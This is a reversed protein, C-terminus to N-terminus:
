KKGGLPFIMWVRRRYEEYSHGYSSLMDDEELSIGLLMYATMAIAFLLHGVSMQPTAWFSIMLGLMIPHRIYKYFGPQILTPLPYKKNRLCYYVQRLGFLDFHGIMVTSLLVILWGVWFLAQLFLAGVGSSINWIMAPLPCWQWFLLILVLSAILVYTSCEVPKPILKRWWKKFGPRAMGSHQVSFLGLLLANILLARLAPTEPGSDISKSVRLNGVFGILYLFTILFVIYAVIGYLLALVKGM